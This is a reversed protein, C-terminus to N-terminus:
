DPGATAKRMDKALASVARSLRRERKPRDTEWRQWLENLRADQWGALDVAQERVGAMARTVARTQRGPRELAPPLQDEVLWGAWRPIHSRFVVLDHVDGLRDQITKLEELLGAVGPFPEAMPEVLYRLHKIQIRAAHAGERGEAMDRRILELMEEIREVFWDAFPPTDGRPRSKLGPKSWFDLRQHAPPDFADALRLLQQGVDGSEPDRAQEGLLAMMVERDRAPSSARALAKLRRRTPKKTRIVDRSLKLWVRLRRLEVRLDHLAEPDDEACQCYHKWAARFVGQQLSVLTAVVEGAPKLPFDATLERAHKRAKGM